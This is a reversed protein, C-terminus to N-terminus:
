DDIPGGRSPFGDEGILGLDRLMNRSKSPSAVERPAESRDRPSAVQAVNLYTEASENTAQTADLSTEEASAVQVGCALVAIAALHAIRKM